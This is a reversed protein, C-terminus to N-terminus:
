AFQVVSEPCCGGDRIAGDVKSADVRQVANSTCILLHSKRPRRRELCLGCRLQCNSIGSYQSEDRHMVPKCVETENFTGPMDPEFGDCLLAPIGGSVMRRPRSLIFLPAPSRGLPYAHSGGPVDKVLLIVDDSWMGYVVFDFEPCIKPLEHPSGGPPKNAQLM